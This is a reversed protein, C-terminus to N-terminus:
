EHKNLNELTIHKFEDEYEKVLYLIVDSKLDIEVDKLDEKINKCLKKYDPHWDEICLEIDEFEDPIYSRNETM